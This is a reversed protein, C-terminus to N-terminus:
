LAWSRLRRNPCNRCGQKDHGRMQTREEPRRCRLHAQSRRQCAGTAIEIVPEPMPRDDIKQIQPPPRHAIEGVDRQNAALIEERRAEILDAAHALAENKAATSATAFVLSAAVAREGLAALASERAAAESEPTGAM